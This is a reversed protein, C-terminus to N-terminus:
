PLHEWHWKESAVTRKFGFRGANAALWLDTAGADHSRNIDVAIGSQHNSYGPRAAPTPKDGKRGGNEWAACARIYQNWLRQQHEHTRFATNVVLTLGDRKAHDRMHIFAMAAREELVHGNDDIQALLLKVREGKHWGETLGIPTNPDTPTEDTM